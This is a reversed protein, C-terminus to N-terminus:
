PKQFNWHLEGFEEHWKHFCTMKGEFNADIKLIIVCLEKTSKKAGIDYVKTLLLGNTHLNQFKRTNPLFERFEEHWKEFWLDTGGWLKCWEETNHCMVGRYKKPEFMIYKQGFYCMLICNKLSAMARVLIWRMDNKSCLTLKKEFKADSKLTIHCLEETSKM